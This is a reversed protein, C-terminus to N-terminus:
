QGYVISDMEANTLSKSDVALDTLSYIPDDAKPGIDVIPELRAVPKGRHTLILREGKQVKGLIREANNRFELM